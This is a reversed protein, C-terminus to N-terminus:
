EDGLLRATWLRVAPYPHQLAKRVTEEESGFRSIQYLAWLAHLAVFGDSKEIVDRLKAISEPDEREGLLRVATQRHWKNEHSLLAILQDTTKRGLNIDKELTADKGRLRYIRGTTPDIQNQYHQGHAIYFECMDSLLLSGDPANAIFLPRFTEDESRLAPELDTTEFTAGRPVRKSTLVINHLPDLSFLLGTSNTPMATGEAFAGFHTFRIANNTTRMMPLVGFAYPNRPPGFKGPDVGQMEYFGGQVFHFGRTGSGNHGSHLRGQADLELGFTNGGGEAFIEFARTEPHYRWVM